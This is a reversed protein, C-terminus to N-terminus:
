ISLEVNMKGLGLPLTDRMFVRRFKPINLKKVYDLLEFNTLAKDPIRIGYVDM